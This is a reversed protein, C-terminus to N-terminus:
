KEFRWGVHEWEPRIWRTFEDVSLGARTPNTGIYQVCHFLHAEDRVIQDYSEEQWFQGDQGLLANIERASYRKWSQLIRELPHEDFPRVIVHVHNPMVVYCDVEYRQGDFFHIAGTVQTRASGIRLSCCGIGQDLWADVQEGLEEAFRRWVIESWPVPYKREWERKCGELENLKGQPLSDGLRFTVFYTAGAQRWHPLHREYRTVPLHPDLGRFGTPAPLNWSSCRTQFM